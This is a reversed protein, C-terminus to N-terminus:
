HTLKRRRIIMWGGLVLLLILGGGYYPWNGGLHDLIKATRSSLAGREVVQFVTKKSEVVKENQYLVVSGWYQGIGLHFNVPFELVFEKTSFPQIEPFNRTKQAFALRIAGFHDLLDFTAYDLAEPVNGDNQFKVLVRPSQGEEIAMFSVIPLSIKRVINDGVVLTLSVSTGLAITVQGAQAPTGTFSLSGNYAVFPADKPVNIRVEVPFQRVGSPITFALGRDTTIWPQVSEVIELVVRIPLDDAPDDRVLWITQAFRSGPVLNTAHVFPPSVGFSFALAERPLLGGIPALLLSISALTFFKRSM